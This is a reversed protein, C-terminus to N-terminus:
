ACMNTWGNKMSEMQVEYKEVIQRLRQIEQEALLRLRREEALEEVLEDALENLSVELDSPSLEV